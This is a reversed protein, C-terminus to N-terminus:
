GLTRGCLSALVESGTTDTGIGRSWWPYKRSPGRPYPSVPLATMCVQYGDLHRVTLQHIHRVDTRVAAFM